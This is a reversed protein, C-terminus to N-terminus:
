APAGTLNLQPAFLDHYRTGIRLLSEPRGDEVVRGHDLVLVRDARQLSSLRHGVIVITRDGALDDIAGQILEETESDVAATAEDLVLIPSDRLLARGLALRQRQGGSLRGGRPGVAARYGARLPAVFPDVHATRAAALLRVDSAHPQGYRLNDSISGQVILPEQFVVSVATRLSDLALDRIDTGDLLVTGSSPDYLRLLLKVLTSKGSGSAGVIAVMEGPEIRFSVDRLVADGQPYGFCLDRFEVAGGIGALRKATRHERVLSPTDLLDAVRQAGAAARQFRGTARALGRVPSYLSGVAGLFAVLTGVTLTGQKIAYAGAALVALGGLATAAEILLTFWAQIRVTRLEARRAADCRAAFRATERDHSSFAHILLAAGLREQALDFWRSTLGRTIKAARRLRPAYRFSAIALLPVVLLAVLTLQWDLFLLFGGFFVAAAIDACLSLPATYILSQTREVDGSLHALRDGAGRDRLSGPSVSIVHRYLDVRVDRALRESVSADLRTAVYDLAVKGAAALVYIGGFLPLLELRGAILVDDVLLKILWLLAAGILPGFLLIAAALAVQGRLPRLYPSFRRFLAPVSATLRQATQPM